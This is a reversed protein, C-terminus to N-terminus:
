PHNANALTAATKSPVVAQTTVRDRQELVTENQMGGVARRPTSSQLRPPVRDARLGRAHVFRSLQEESVEGPDIMVRVAVTRRIEPDRTAGSAHPAATSGTGVPRGGGVFGAEPGSRTSMVM